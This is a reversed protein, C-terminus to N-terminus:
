KRVLENVITQGCNQLIEEVVPRYSTMQIAFEGEEREYEQGAIIFSSLFDIVSNNAERHQLQIGLIAAQVIRMIMDKANFLVDPIRDVSRCLLDYFDAVLHPNRIYNEQNSALLQLTTECFVTLIHIIM